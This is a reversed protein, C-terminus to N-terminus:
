RHTPRYVTLPRVRWSLPMDAHWRGSIEGSFVFFSLFIRSVEQLVPLKTTCYEQLIIRACRAPNQSSAARTRRRVPCGEEVINTEATM